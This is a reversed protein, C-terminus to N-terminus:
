ELEAQNSEVQTELVGVRRRLRGAEVEAVRRKGKEREAEGELRSRLESTRRDHEEQMRRLKEASEDRARLQHAELERM